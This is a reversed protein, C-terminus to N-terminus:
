LALLGARAAKTVAETRSAARLKGLIANVHFKVTNERIGLAQAAQKNSLGEAVLKLVQLERATLSEVPDRDTPTDDPRYYPASRPVLREEGAQLGPALLAPDIVGLGDLAVQLARFLTGPGSQRRLVGWGAGAGGRQAWIGPDIRATDPLLFVAPFSAPQTVGAEPAALRTWAALAAQPDAGLDWLLVEPQFVELPSPAGGTRSASEGLEDPAAAGVVALGDEAGLLLALGSRVLPDGAVILVRLARM